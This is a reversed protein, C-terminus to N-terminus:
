QENTSVLTFTYSCQHWKGDAEKVVHYTHWGDTYYLTPDGFYIALLKNRIMVPYAETPSVFTVSVGSLFEVDFWQVSPQGAALDAVQKDYAPCDPSRSFDQCIDQPTRFELDALLVFFHKVVDQIAQTDTIVSVTVTHVIKTRAGSNDTVSLTVTFTGNSTYAHEASAGAGTTGDGFDWAYATISGDPDLSSSASVDATAGSVSDSFVAQPVVNAAPDHTVVVNDFFATAKKVYLAIQGTYVYGLDRTLFPSGDVSLTVLDNSIALSYHHPATINGSFPFKLKTEYGGNFRDVLRIIGRKGDLLVARYNKSDRYHFMLGAYKGSVMTMDWDITVNDTNGLTPFLFGARPAVAQVQGASPSWAGKSAHWDSIDGDAFDDSLLTDTAVVDLALPSAGPLSVSRLGSTGSALVSLIVTNTDVFRERLVRVGPITWNNVPRFNEGQVVLETVLGAQIQGPSVTFARAPPMEVKRMFDFFNNEDASAIGGFILLMLTLIRLRM